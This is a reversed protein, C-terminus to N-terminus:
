GFNDAVSCIIEILKDPNTENIVLPISDVNGFEKL